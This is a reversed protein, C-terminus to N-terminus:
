VNRGPLQPKSYGLVSWHEPSAYYSALILNRLGLYARRVLDLYSDRWKQLLASLQQPSQLAIPTLSGALLLNGLQGELSDLLQELELRQHEPLAEITALTADICREIAAARPQAVQPLVGDLLPPILAGLLLRYKPAQQYDFDQQHAYWNVGLALAATGSLALTLFSRRQM